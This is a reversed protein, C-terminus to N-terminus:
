ERVPSKLEDRNLIRFEVRRNARRGEETDNSAVPSGEGYGASKLNRPNLKPFNELLYERVAKARERSLKLNFEESGSSDTHGGIEIEAEPWESLVEGIRDLLKKSGPKLEAKGVDFEIETTSFLGTNIFEYVAANVKVPCGNEDVKTREDTGPCKDLGDYVGDGDSDLPCGEADVEAGAPTDPCIDIGDFVGDGDTDRPCGREDVTAGEPTGPCVDFSDWVGDGDTDLPCGCRGVKVGAPTDPCKDVKDAVGDGDSDKCACTKLFPWPKGIFCLARSDAKKEDSGAFAASGAVSVFLFAIALIASIFRM